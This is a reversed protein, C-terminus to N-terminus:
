WGVFRYELHHSKADNWHTFKGFGMFNNYTDFSSHKRNWAWGLNLDDWGDYLDGKRFQFAENHSSRVTIIGDVQLSACILEKGWFILTYDYGGGATCVAWTNKRGPARYDSKSGELWTVWPGFTVCGINSSSTCGAYQYENSNCPTCNFRSTGDCYYGGGCPSCKNNSTSSCTSSLFQGTRCSSAGCETANLGDTCYHNDKCNNCSYNTTSTCSGSRYKGNGCHTICDLCTSQGTKNQYQNGTCEILNGEVCRHGVPCIEIDTRSPKIYYGTPVDKCEYGKSGGIVNIYQNTECSASIGDYVGDCGIYIENKEKDVHERKLTCESCKNDSVYVDREKDDKGKYAERSIFMGNGCNTTLKECRCKNFLFQNEDNLHDENFTCEDKEPFEPCTGTDKNVIESYNFSVENFDYIEKLQRKYEIILEDRNEHKENNYEDYFELYCLKRIIRLRRNELKRLYDDYNVLTKLIDIDICANNDEKFCVKNGVKVNNFIDEDGGGGIAGKDGNLGPKGREGDAGKNGIIGREGQPGIPHKGDKGNDGVNGIIGRPVDIIIPQLSKAYAGDPGDPPYYSGIIEKKHNVFLITGVVGTAGQVADPVQINFDPHKPDKTNQNLLSDIVKDENNKFILSGYNKGNIGNDGMEGIVGDDPPLPPPGQKGKEGDFGKSGKQYNILNKELNLKLRAEKIDKTDNINTFGERNKIITYILISISFIVIITLLLLFIEIM